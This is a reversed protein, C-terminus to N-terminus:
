RFSSELLCRWDNVADHRLGLSEVVLHSVDDPPTSLGIAYKSRGLRAVVVGADAAPPILPAILSRAV